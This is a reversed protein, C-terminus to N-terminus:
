GEGEFDRREATSWAESDFRRAAEIGAKMAREDPHWQRCSPPCDPGCFVEHEADVNWDSM